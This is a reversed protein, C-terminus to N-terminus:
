WKMNWAARIRIREWFLKLKKDKEFLKFKLSSFWYLYISTNLDFLEEPQALLVLAMARELENILNYSGVMMLELALAPNSLPELISNMTLFRILAKLGGEELAQHSGDELQAGSFIPLAKYSLRGDADEDLLFTLQKEVKESFAVCLLNNM